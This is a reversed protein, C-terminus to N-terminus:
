EGFFDLLWEFTRFVLVWSIALALAALTILGVREIVM